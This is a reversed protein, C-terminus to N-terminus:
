KTIGSIKAQGCPNSCILDAYKVLTATYAPYGPKQRIIKGGEDELWRWDCLQHLAFDKTSLLYMNGNEIFRDAVVPIGNYSLAKFGGQLDMVDINTRSATLLKQYIRKVDNACTIYDVSSASIEDIEDICQQMLDESLTASPATKIVPSMWNYDAKTVGYLSTVSSDFLAGIGTIEQDKSNQLTIFYADDTAKTISNTVSLYVNKNARDIKTIRATLSSADNGTKYLEIIQGEMLNKVSDVTLYTSAIATVNALKGTGNGFLMRSFNFNSAKILGEMEANLLNVFAGANTESARIAKDSIEIVGYLNKLSSVFKVYNNGASTPLAGTETGAGVGGNVGFSTLKIIEKGWVDNTTQKIRALLPNAKINLSESVVDLYADKLANQANEITVM